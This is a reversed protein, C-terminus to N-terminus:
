SDTEDMSVEPIFQGSGKREEIYRYIKGAESIAALYKRAVNDIQERNAKLTSGNPGLPIEALLEPHRDAFDRVSDQDAPESITEAVDITFFDCPEIFRDVTKLGIHDADLFYPSGWECAKVAAQAAQRTEAPESGIINHERHSKNWVPIVEVGQHLAAICAQLQAQGQLAFRDGVGISYKPLRLSNTSM